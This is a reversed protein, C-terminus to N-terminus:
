TYTTSWTARGTRIVGTTKTYTCSHSKSSVRSTGPFPSVATIDTSWKRKTTNKRTARQGPANPRGTVAIMKSGYVVNDNLPGSETWTCHRPRVTQVFTYTRSKRAMTTVSSTNGHKASRVSSLTGTMTRLPVSANSPTPSKMKWLSLIPYPAM